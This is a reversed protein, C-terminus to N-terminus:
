EPLSDLWTRVADSGGARRLKERQEPSMRISVGILREDASKPPRGVPRVVRKAPETPPLGARVRKYARWADAPTASGALGLWLSREGDTLGNFWSFGALDDGTPTTNTNDMHNNYNKFEYIVFVIM